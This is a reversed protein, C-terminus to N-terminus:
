SNEADTALIRMIAMTVVTCGMVVDQLGHKIIEERIM